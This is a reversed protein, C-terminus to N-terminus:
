RAFEVEVVQEENNRLFTFSVTEGPIINGLVKSLPITPEILVEGVKTIIDGVRFGSVLAPVSQSAVSRVALTPQSIKEIRAGNQISVGLLKSEILNLSTYEVGFAIRRFQQERGLFELASEINNASILFLEEKDSSGAQNTQSIPNSPNAEVSKVGLMGVTEGRLNLVPAGKLNLGDFGWVRYVGELSESSAFEGSAINFMPDKQTIRGVALELDLALGQRMGVVKSGLVIDDSNAFNVHTFGTGEAQFFGIKTYPDYDKFVVGIEKGTNDYAVFMRNQTNPEEAFFTAIVGDATLFFGSFREASEVNNQIAINTKTDNQMEQPLSLLTVLIDKHNFAVDHAIDDETITVEETNNIITVQENAMKFIPYKAFFPVEVLKPFLYHEAIISISIIVLVTAFVIGFWKSLIKLVRLFQLM